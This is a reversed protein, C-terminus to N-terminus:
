RPWAQPKTFTVLPALGFTVLQALMKELYKLSNQPCESIIIRKPKQQCTDAKESFPTKINHLFPEKLAQGSKDIKSLDAKWSHLGDYFPNHSRQNKNHPSWSMIVAFFPKLKKLWINVLVDHEKPPLCPNERIKQFGLNKYQTKRHM